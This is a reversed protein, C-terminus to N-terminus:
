HAAAGQAADTGKGEGRARVKPRVYLTTHVRAVETGDEAVVTVDFEPLAKGAREADARIAEVRADPLEFTARVTGRGPRLFEITAAKDWVVYGPGLREMLMLMFFPDCMSYLSGGFHTGVFNRNFRTLPMAVTVRSGDAAADTVRVGAGVYPPYFRALRLARGFGFRRVARQMITPM